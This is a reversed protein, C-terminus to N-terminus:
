RVLFEDVTEEAASFAEKFKKGWAAILCSGGWWVRKRAVGPSSKTGASYKLCSPPPPPHLPLGADKDPEGGSGRTLLEFGSRKCFLM